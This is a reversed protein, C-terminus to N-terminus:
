HITNIKDLIEPPLDKTDIGEFATKFVIMNMEDSLLLINEYSTDPLNKRVAPIVTTHIFSTINKNSWEDVYSSDGKELEKELEAALQTKHEGALTKCFSLIEEREAQLVLSEAKEMERAKRDHSISYFLLIIISIDITAFVIFTITYKDRVFIAAVVSFVLLVILTWLIIRRM